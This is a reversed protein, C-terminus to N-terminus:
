QDRPYSIHVPARFESIFLDLDEKLLEQPINKVLLVENINKELYYNAKRNQEEQTIGHLLKKIMFDYKRYFRINLPDFFPTKNRFSNM